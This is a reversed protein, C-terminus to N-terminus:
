NREIENESVYQLCPANIFPPAAPLDILLKDGEEISNLDAEREQLVSCPIKVTKDEFHFMYFSM